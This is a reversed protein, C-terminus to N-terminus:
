TGDRSPGPTRVGGQSRLTGRAQPSSRSAARSVWRSVHHLRGLGIPEPRHERALGAATQARAERRAKSRCGLERTGSDLAASQPMETPIVEPWYVSIPGSLRVFATATDLAGTLDDALLRMANM